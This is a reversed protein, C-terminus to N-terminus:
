VTEGGAAHLPLSERLTRWARSPTRVSGKFAMSTGGMSLECTYIFQLSSDPAPLDKLYSWDRSVAIRGRCRDLQVPLVVYPMGLEVNTVGKGLALLLVFQEYFSLDVFLDMENPGDPAPTLLPTKSALMSWYARRLFESPKSDLSWRVAASANDLSAKRLVNFFDTASLFPNENAVVDWSRLLAALDTVSGNSRAFHTMFATSITACQDVGLRAGLTAHKEIRHLNPDSSVLLIIVGMGDTHPINFTRYENRGQLSRGKRWRKMWGEAQRSNHETDRQWGKATETMWMLVATDRCHWALDAPERTGSGERFVDPFFAHRGGMASETLSRLLLEQASEM